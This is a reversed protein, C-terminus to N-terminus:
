EVQNVAPPAEIATELHRLDCSRLFEEIEGAPQPRAFLYGQVSGPHVGRLLSFQRPREIGTAVTTLGLDHVVSVMAQVLPRTSVPGDLGDIFSRDIKIANLVNVPLRHLSTLSSQAMGFHDVAIRVGLFRLREMQGAAASLNSLIASETLELELLNPEVELDRLVRAVHSAFDTRGFPVGLQVPSVNISIKPVRLGRKRWRQLQSCAEGVVWEGIPTILGTEEALSMFRDPTLLGLDAHHLRLLAEVGTLDGAMSFQPQYHLEFGGHDLANRLAPEIAFEIEMEQAQSEGEGRSYFEYRNKGSLKARYMAADAHKQLSVPDDGDQPYLSIGISAGAFLREGEIVCPARLAELMGTATQEVWAPDDQQRLLLTFEDGGIRALTAGAPLTGGLRCAVQKLFLDGVRHGLSDNIQKFRDLDLFFVALLRGNQRAETLADRLTSEFALRNPLGTLADHGAQYALREYLRYNDIAAGALNSMGSIVFLEIKHQRAAPVRLEKTPRLYVAIAGLLEDDGSRIPAFHCGTLSHRRAAAHLDRWLEDFEVGGVPISQIEGAFAAPLSADESVELKGEILRIVGSLAGPCNVAISRAIRQFIVDLPKRRAIMELIAQRDAELRKKRHLEEILLGRQRYSLIAFALLSFICALSIVAVIRFTQNRYWPPPVFFEFHAPRADINGNRDMARVEFRRQGVPLHKLGAFRSQVFPSWPGGDVRWSFLLRDTMTQKWKDTGSFEIRMQGDAPAEHSNQEESIFTTPPDVDAEPHYLSIGSTTGAWIRGRSDEFVRYAVSSPLGEEAGNSLWIGNRYRHIGSGSAVWLTGDRAMIISRTRDMGGHLFQWAKRNPGSAKADRVFFSERGGAYIVGSPAEYLQFCGKDTYGEEATQAEFNEHQGQSNRPYVSFGTIYGAWLNGARDLHISRLDDGRDASARALFTRFTHGDYIELRFSSKNDPRYTEVLLGEPHAVFLRIDRGEPHQVAAFQQTRPDFTVLNSSTTRLAIKGDPLEALSETFIAWIQQGKPLPFTQWRQNDFSVLATGAAFWIRGTRDETIANVVDNLHRIGAPTQWLPPTHHAAGQSSTVWFKGDREIETSLLIGALSSQREVPHARGDALELIQDGDQIWVSGEVGPWGRLVPERNSYVERWRGRSFQFLSNGRSGTATALLDGNDAEVLDRLDAFGPPCRAYSAWVWGGDIVQWLIGVGARGTIWAGGSKRPVIDVLRQLRTQEVSLIPLARGRNADFELVRDPVLILVRERSLAALGVKGNLADSNSVFQWHQTSDLRLSGLSTVEPVRYSNWTGGSFRQLTNGTWFWLTGDATGDMQGVAHPHTSLIFQYGDLLNMATHGHKFWVGHSTGLVSSTYSEAMGDTNDWFRWGPSDQPCAVWAFLLTLLGAQIYFTRKM